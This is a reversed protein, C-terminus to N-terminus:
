RISRRSRFDMWQGGRERILVRERPSLLYVWVYAAFLALIASVFSLKAAWGQLAAAAAFLALAPAQAALSNRLPPALEPILRALLWASVLADLLIRCTWVIAAGDVGLTSVGWWLTALFLPTELLHIKARIDPRGVGQMLTNVVGQLSAVFVGAALWRLIRESHAAFDAGLWFALAEHAFTVICLTVPFFAIFIFKTGKAFLMVLRAHDVRFSMAFAPFLVATFAGSVLWLRTVVDYPTVYYAVAAVSLMAGIFFRDLYVMVPTLLNSVTLWGGFSLLAPIQEPRLSFHRRLDPNVRLCLALYAIAAALRGAVLVGVVLPLNTSFPLVLLPGLYTYIGTPVAVAAILRFRQYAELIGRLAAILIVVPIFAALVRFAGLTEDQLAPPINLVGSVLWPAILGVVAGGLVGLLLMLLLATWVLGPIEAEEGRGLKEAVLRTLARGLGLDFIGFYGVVLWALALVGFREVGLGHILFPMSVLAVLM